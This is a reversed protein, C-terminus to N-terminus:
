NLKNTIVQKATSPNEQWFIAWFTNTICNIANLKHNSQTKLATVTARKIRTTRPFHIKKNREILHYRVPFIKHISYNIFSKSDGM